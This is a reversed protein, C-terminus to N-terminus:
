KKRKESLLGDPEDFTSCTIEFSDLRALVQLSNINCPLYKFHTAM